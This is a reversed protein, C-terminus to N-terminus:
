NALVFNRFFYTVNDYFESIHLIIYHKKFLKVTSRKMLFAIVMIDNCSALSLIISLM